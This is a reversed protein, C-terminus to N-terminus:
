KVFLGILVGAILVIVSVIWATTGTWAYAELFLIGLINLAAIIALIWGVIKLGM